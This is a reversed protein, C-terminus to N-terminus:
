PLDSNDRDAVEGSGGSKWTLNCLEGLTGAPRVLWWAGDGAAPNVDTVCHEGGGLDACNSTTTGSSSPTRDADLTSLLGQSYFWKDIGSDWGFAGKDDFSVTIGPGTPCSIAIGANATGNCTDDASCRVDVTYTKAVLPADLLTPDDTYDRMVGDVNNSFRFQLTGDLCRGNQATSGSADLEVPQGPAGLGGAPDLQLDATVSDCISGCPDLGANPANDVSISAATSLTDSIEIEDIWWGDDGPDPNYGFLQEYNAFTGVKIGSNQFRLRLRRGRFRALDFRSEVWTGLGVSGAEGPGEANGLLEASFANFTDGLYAWSFEPFCMSSPGLRRDPDGPDFFDDETNGDDDPDFLCNTYNDTGQQDYVNQYPELKIWDGIGTGTGDALQAHVVGRDASESAPANVSRSDILSVQQRFSMQPEVGDWGLNIPAASGVGELTALPTTHEDANAGFIGMYLSQTGTYARGGDIDTTRHVQWTYADAAAATPGVFCDTIAGYSNSNVWDPDSYQCRKGDSNALPDGTLAGFDLNLTTFSGLGGAVEFGEVFTGPGSGGTANLDLDLTVNQPITIVDFQDCQMIVSFESEFVDLDSLGGSSTRDATSSVHFRFAEAPALLKVEDEAMDGIVAFSDIVCDIKSDGTALRATCGTLDVGTKNSVEIQMDVTENTDAWGDNDGNDTLKTSTVILNGATLFITTATQVEGQAGPDVDNLCKCITPNTCTGDNNDLYTALVTPNDTGVVQAFLTGPVDYSVSVPITGTYVGSGPTTEELLVREGPNLESETQIEVSIELNADGDCNSLGDPTGDLDCDTNGDHSADMVSIKVLANGEYFNTSEVEMAACQGETACNTTDAVLGFERWEVVMDDVAVGYGAAPDPDAAQAKEFNLMGVGAQFTTGTKGFIDELTAFRMDPGNFAFIDMNRLPGNVKVYEDVAANDQVCPGVLGEDTCDSLGGNCTVNPGDTCYFDAVDNDLPQALGPTALAAGANEFFCSNKGVRNNGVTGNFSAGTIGQPAFMSFGNTLDPNGEQTFAGYGGNGFNLLTLDAIIDVPELSNVDTDFEWSWFVNSDPLDVAQNWAWQTIEITDSAGGVKQIEPTRLIEFWTRQGTDGSVTEFSQCQGPTAGQVLCAGSTGGIRGTHWAGGTVQGSANCPGADLTGIFCDDDTYCFTGGPDLACSSPALSQWGCGGSDSWNLDLVNNAPDRDEISSCTTAPPNATLCDNNNFCALDERPPNCRRDNVTNFNKDEGWQAITDLITSEDSSAGLGVQFGGNDFDFHWPAGLQLNKTGGATLDGYVRTEFRYDEQFDGINTTPDEALENDNHDHVETGGTPFDTSYLTEDEDVDLKHRSVGVAKAPKGSTSATLELVLEIEPEGAIFAAMQVAFNAAIASGAPIRGITLPSNLITMYGPCPTNNERLSDTCGPRTADGPACNEDGTTDNVEVCRLSTEVQELAEAEASAFAFQFQISEGADMYKDPSGFERLGRENTECGGQVFYNGDEGFQGFTFSGVEIKSRCDVTSRSTRVKNADPSGSTEDSYVVKITNGTRVDLVGNGPEQATGGTVVSPDAEFNLASGDPQTFQLCKTSLAGCGVEEDVVMDGDLVQVLVRSEVENPTLGAVPDISDPDEAFENVILKAEDNCVYRGKDLQISSQITVGGAIVLAYGQATNNGGTNGIVRVTWLGTEIQTDDSPNADPPDAANDGDLDDTLIVAETPNEDDHPSPSGNGRTCFPLSWQTSDPESSGTAGFHDPCDETFSDIVDDRNDDDTFYNGFYIKGSPAIVELDLDNNLGDGSDEIWALAVRLEQNPDTVIFTGTDTSGAVTNVAGGLGPVSIKGGVIGGDAIILGSPSASHTELKLTNDLQIAGYGQENNFRFLDTLNFGTMFNASSILTAKVLAGSIASITDGANGPNGSTGDPYFGQAYYDRALAAAGTAAPSAFSTGSAGASLDCDVPSNGDNDNSRCTFMGGIGMSGLDSGPAMLQPAVRNAAGAPGVSSFAARSEVSGGTQGLDNAVGSAGIALGNKTTAPTGVTSPDPINDNDADQSANGASVFVMADKHLDLFNDIDIANASYVNSDAGWSFNMLRAGHNDYSKALSGNVGGDFLDGPSITDQLPDACSVAAPTIQGDYAVFKALPAVGDAKWTDNQGPTPNTHLTGTCPPSACYFDPLFDTAHGGAIAAVVHGHTFGGQGPADCGQDDGVGGFQFTSSYELVKRHANSPGANGPDTGPTGVSTETDSLDKADLQIGSDLIMIVQASAIGNGGGNIGADFYPTTGQNWNGQQITTTTEEGHPMIPLDENVMWVSEIAAVAGLKARNISVYLTDGWAKRVTGGVAAIAQTALELNEGRHLVIELDYVESMAKVPDVLPTRGITPDLKLAPHFPEVALVGSSSQIAGMAAASAKVVIASVPMSRVVAGGNAEISSILDTRAGDAAAEPDISVIFYQSEMQALKNVTTLEVPLRGLGETMQFSGVRTHLVGPARQESREVKGYSPGSAFPWVYNGRAYSVTRKTAKEIQKEAPAMGQEPREVVSEPAALAATFPVLALSVIAVTIIFFRGGCFRETRM